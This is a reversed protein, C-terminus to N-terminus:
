SGHEPENMLQHWGEHGLQRLTAINAEYIDRADPFAAVARDVSNERLLHLVPYPARNTFNEIDDPGTGAFQYRPHFSAIQLIGELGMRRLMRDAQDLLDLMEPFDHMAEPAVLLTTDLQEPESQVLANLEIQLDSLVGALTTAQSLAWHIQHRVHVAKAFPCLNLGIVARQLWLRTQRLVEDPDHEM